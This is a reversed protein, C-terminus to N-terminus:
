SFMGWQLRHDILMFIKVPLPELWLIKNYGMYFVQPHVVCVVMTFFLILRVTSTSSTEILIFVALLIFPFGYSLARDIDHVYIGTAVLVVFGAMLALLLWYRRTLCLVAFAAILILWTGEFAGWISSGLGNRHANALLVPTGITSYSHHPFYTTQVYERITFYIAWAVWVVLSEGTFASKLLGPVGFNKNRYAKTGMWWLLLYGGAVVAREDTFFAILLSLFIVLSNKSLLALLLFFFAFEDGYGHVDAFAWVSVFINAIATVFLATIVKDGSVSYIYAGTKYLFLVGLVAQIILILLVNHGTLFSLAPLTWRFIMNERRVDYDMDKPHLIDQAQNHIFVWADLSVGNSRLHDLLLSYPPFALFLSLAVAFFTLKWLWNKGSLQAEIWLLSSGYFNELLM